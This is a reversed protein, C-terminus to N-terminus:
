ESKELGVMKEQKWIFSYLELEEVCRSFAKDGTTITPPM